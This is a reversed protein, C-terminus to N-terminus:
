KSAANDAIDALKDELDRIQQKMKFYDYIFPSSVIVILLLTVFGSFLFLSVNGAACAMYMIGITCFFLPGVSVLLYFVACLLVYITALVLAFKKLTM